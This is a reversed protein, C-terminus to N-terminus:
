NKIVKFYIIIGISALLLMIILALILKNTMARRSMSTLVKRARGISDDADHLHERAHSITERQKHLDQLISVGLEETELLTQKGQRIRDGTMNLQEHTQLLRERQGASTSSSSPGDSVDLLKFLRFGPLSSGLEARSLLEDRAEDNVGTAAAKTMDRKLKNLDEKYERLKALLPTKAAVPLSRAELDMRTILAKAEAVDAQIEQLKPDKEAASLSSLTQTKRSIGTSLDCYEREYSDFMSSM